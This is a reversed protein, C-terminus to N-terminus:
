RSTAAKAVEHADALVMDTPLDEQPSSFAALLSVIVSYVVLLHAVFLARSKRSRRIRGLWVVAKADLHGLCAAM